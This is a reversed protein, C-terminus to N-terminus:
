IITYDKNKKIIYYRLMDTIQTVHFDNPFDEVRMENLKM